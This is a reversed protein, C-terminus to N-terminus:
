DSREEEESEPKVAFSKRLHEEFLGRTEKQKLAVRSSIEMVFEQNGELYMSLPVAQFEQMEGEIIVKVFHGMKDLFELPALRMSVVQIWARVSLYHLQTSRYKNVSFNSFKEKECLRLGPTRGSFTKEILDKLSRYPSGKQTWFADADIFPGLLDSPMSDGMFNHLIELVEKCNNRFVKLFYVNGLLEAILSKLSKTENVQLRNVLVLFVAFDTAVSIVSPQTRDIKESLKCQWACDITLLNHIHPSLERLFQAMELVKEETDIVYVFSSSSNASEISEIRHFPLWLGDEILPGFFDLRDGLLIPKFTAVWFQIIPPLSPFNKRKEEEPLAFFVKAANAMNKEDVCANFLKKLFVVDGGCHEISLEIPLVKPLDRRLYLSRINSYFYWIDDSEQEFDLQAKKLLALVLSLKVRSFQLDDATALPLDTQQQQKLTKDRLKKSERYCIVAERAVEKLFEENECCNFFDSLKKEFPLLFKEFFDRAPVFDWFFPTKVAIFNRMSPAAQVAQKMRSVVFDRRATHCHIELEAGISLYGAVQLWLEPPQSFITDMYREFEYPDSPMTFVCPSVPYAGSAFTRAVEQIYNEAM